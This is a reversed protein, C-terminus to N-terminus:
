YFFSASADSPKSPIYGPTGPSSANYIFQGIQKKLDGFMPAQFQPDSYLLGLQHIGGAQALMALQAQIDQMSDGGGIGAYGANIGAGGGGGGGGVGPSYAAPINIVPRNNAAAEAAQRNQDAIYRANDSARQDADAQRKIDAQRKLEAAEDQQQRGWMDARQNNVDRVTQAYNGRIGQQTNGLQIGLDNLYKNYNTELEGRSQADASSGFMGSTAFKAILADLAKTRTDGANSKQRDFDQQAAFLQNGQELQKDALMQELAQSKAAYQPNFAFQQVTPTVPAASAASISGPTVSGFVNQQAQSNAQQNGADINGTGSTGLKNQDDNVTQGYQNIPM